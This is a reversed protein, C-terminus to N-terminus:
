IQTKDAVSVMEKWNEGVSAEVKLVVGGTKELPVLTEMIKKIKGTVDDIIKEDVEFVLEDHVQLTMKVKDELKEKVLFEDIKVMALKVVDAETGQIPANIAMREAMAKIFPLKSRLGEFYRRRGFLTETYGKEKADIKVNELYRALGSFKNFYDNLYKQAEERSSGLNVKLSNVGMGYMIGFNIVKAKRRMEKDVENMPVGFVESAVATHIDEGKRFIELLKEDSSLFAAIRLEIQSYDIALIKCGKEATFAKRINRGLESGNPINQLNPESSSLRGTTTGAQLFKAHLRNESDLLNPIVDIYTSLLKQLERYEFILPIIPHMDRMKELESEKTSLAGTGTKKQNKPKLGLKEFLIEGLQKPSNINFEGLALEWIKKELESLTKHYDKSLRELEEKDIKVGNKEIKEIIPILPKEITEWINLLGRKEMEELLVKEVLVLNKEKTFNYIDEAQPNTINSNVLWLMISLEKEKESSLRAELHSTKNNKIESEQIKETKIKGELIGKLRVGLTRFELENWVNNIKEFDVAERWEKEPLTFDIPADLRITGLMKSFKAEEEGEELLGIIREKIGAKIFQEKDKKLEKYINEISGFKQILESATKEGIGKIGIINDSPDGRLGKYDPLLKPLFGYREIVAKENYIITDKIGKKLTYVRIKDDEVLQLTDMDGSAIVIDLNKDKKNIEVLTGIMDDAEFGEKDYIPINLANFIERSKILQSVLEGDAQARGAKYDKYAIHRYTPKPLDYCALIYDPKLDTIIKLLMTSLGYLAGTPEGKSTAFEPLAHYARHIIAHVDLLVLTKTKSAGHIKKDRKINSMKTNAKEYPKYYLIKIKPNKGYFKLPIVDM